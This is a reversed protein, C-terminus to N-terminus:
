GSIETQMKKSKKWMRVQIYPWSKTFNKKSKKIENAAIEIDSAQGQAGGM